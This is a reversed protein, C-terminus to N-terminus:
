KSKEQQQRWAKLAALDNSHVDKWAHLDHLESNQKNLEIAVMWGIGGLVLLCCVSVVACIIGVAGMGATKHIVTQTQGQPVREILKEVAAALDQMQVILVDFDKGTPTWLEISESVLGESEGDQSSHV